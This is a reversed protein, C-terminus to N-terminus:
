TQGQAVGHVAAHLAKRDEVIEQLKSLSMNVSNTIGDLRIMRQRGRKRRGKIKGLM